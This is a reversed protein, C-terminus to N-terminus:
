GRASRGFRFRSSIMWRLLKTYCVNYSTIRASTGLDAVMKKGLSRKAHIIDERNRKPREALPQSSRAEIPMTTRIHLRNGTNERTGHKIGAPRSRGTRKIIGQRRPIVEVEIGPQFKVKGHEIGDTAPIGVGVIDTKTELTAYYSRIAYM